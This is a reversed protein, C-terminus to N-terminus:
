RHRSKTSSAPSSLEDLANPNIPRRHRICEVVENIAAVVIDPRDLQIHHGADEVVLYASNSSLRSLEEQFSRWAAELREGVKTSVGPPPPMPRGHALVVLPLRGLSPSATKLGQLDNRFTDFDIGEPLHTLGEKFESLTAEPLLAWFRAPQHESVSDVLVMGEVAAPDKAAFYRINAGGMSHGVLVYPGPIGTARLLDHLEEAM